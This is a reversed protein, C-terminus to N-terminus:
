LSFDRVHRGGKVRSYTLSYIDLNIFSLSNLHYNHNERNNVDHKMHYTFDLKRWVNVWENMLSKNLWEINRSLALHHIRAKLFNMIWWTICVQLGVLVRYMRYFSIHRLLPPFVELQLHCRLKKSLNALYCLPTVASCWLREGVSTKAHGGCRCLCFVYWVSVNLCTFLLIIELARVPQPIWSVTMATVLEFIVPLFSSLLCFQANMQAEQTLSCTWQPTHEELWRSSFLLIKRNWLSTRSSQYPSSEALPRSVIAGRQAM